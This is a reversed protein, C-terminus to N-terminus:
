GSRWLRSPRQGWCRSGVASSRPGTGRSGPRGSRWSRTQIRGEVYVQRGQRLYQRAVEAQRGFCVVNHWETAEQRAGDRDRWRRHTALSFSAVPVGSTTSRLVPDGGLNGVLIAKNIM